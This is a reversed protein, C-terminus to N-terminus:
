LTAEAFLGREAYARQVREVAIDFYRREREIGICKRGTNVCAVATTGSGLFPDLITSADPTLKEVNWGILSLPKQTPHDVKGPQGHRYSDCEFINFDYQGGNWVRGPKYAYVAHEVASCFGANPAAPPPCKKKWFLMRTKYGRMELDDVIHSIQRHGCWVVMSLPSVNAAMGIAQVVLDTMGRWDADGAFFDLNRTGSASVNRAGAISVAYPPDTVVADVCGDPLQPLIDLCDGHFLCVAGDDSQWDPQLDGLDIM